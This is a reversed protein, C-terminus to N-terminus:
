NGYPPSLDTGLTLFSLDPLWGSLSAPFISGALKSLILPPQEQEGNQCPVSKRGVKIYCVKAYQEGNQCKEQCVIHVGSNQMSKVPQEGNQCKEQCVFHVGSNQMSKVPQEGNQCKEQSVFHVGSNQMSKIIQEAM